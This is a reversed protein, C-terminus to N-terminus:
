GLPLQGRGATRVFPILVGLSSVKEDDMGAYEGTDWLRLFEEGGIGLLQRCRRDFLERGEEHTLEHTGSM